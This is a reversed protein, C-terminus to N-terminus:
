DIQIKTKAVESGSKVEVLYMGKELGLTNVSIQNNTNGEATVTKVKQGLFNYVSVEVQNNPQYNKLWVTFNGVSPNPFVLLAPPNLANYEIGTINDGVIINDIDLFWDGSARSVDLRLQINQGAIASFLSNTYTYTTWTTLPAPNTTNDITALGNQWSGFVNADISVKDGTALTTGQSPYLAANVFRYQLSIKSTASIPGIPPTILTDHIHTASMESSCANPVSSGHNAYVKFGSTTSWGSPLAGTAPNGSTSVGDFNESFIPAQASLLGSVFLSSLFLLKKM